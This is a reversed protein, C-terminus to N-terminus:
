ILSLVEGFCFWVIVWGAVRWLVLFIGVSLVFVQAVMIATRCIVLDCHETAASLKISIKMCEAIEWVHKRVENKKWQM